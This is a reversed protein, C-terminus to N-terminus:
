NRLHELRIGPKCDLSSRGLVSSEIMQRGRSKAVDILDYYSKM